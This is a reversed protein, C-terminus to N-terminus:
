PSVIRMGRAQLALRIQAVVLQPQTRVVVSPFRLVLADGLTIENQRLQDDWWRVATLHLGGDVEVVVLRGDARRWSADLYRRRGGPGRRVRQQVPPPLRAARCLRALDIESLAQAGQAIDGVALVLERRHRVTPQRDLCDALESARVVRQQVAAALVGCAARVSALSAAAVLLAEPAAHLPARPHRAAAPWDRRHHLRVAVPCGHRLRTGAPVLVDVADREWGRLRAAEAGTFGTLLARPGAHALAVHWRQYRTLPGNHLVIAYGWRRWRGARLQARIRAPTVGNRRLASWTTVLGPRELPHPM